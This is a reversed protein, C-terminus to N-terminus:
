LVDFKIFGNKKTFNKDFTDKSIHIAEEHVEIEIWELNFVRGNFFEQDHSTYNQNHLNGIILISHPPITARFIHENDDLDQLSITKSWDIKKSSTAGYCTPNKEFIPFSGGSDDALRYTVYIEQDSLNGVSFHEVWSCGSFFLPLLCSFLTVYRKM